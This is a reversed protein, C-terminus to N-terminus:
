HAAGSADSQETRCDLAFPVGKERIDDTEPLTPQVSSSVVACPRRGAPWSCDVEVHLRGWSDTM